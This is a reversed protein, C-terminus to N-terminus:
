GGVREGQRPHFCAGALLALSARPLTLGGQFESQSLGSRAERAGVINAQHKTGRAHM